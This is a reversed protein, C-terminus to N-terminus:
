ASARAPERRGAATDRPTRLADATGHKAARAIARELRATSAHRVEPVRTVGVTRIGCYWLTSNKLAIPAADRYFWRNWWAPSDMTMVLRATRGALHKDWGRGQARYSFATGSLLVRDIWAKLAAPYTGWWQPFLMVLHDAADVLEIYRAVDPDLPLDDDHDERPARLHGRARPHDPIPDRALDIVDVRAGAARAADVYAGALAHNLSDALPTGIVVLIGPPRTLTTM